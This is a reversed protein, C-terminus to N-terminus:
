LEVGSVGCVGGLQAPPGINKLHRGVQERGPLQDKRYKLLRFILLILSWGRIGTFM